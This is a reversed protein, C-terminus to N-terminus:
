PSIKTKNTWDGSGDTKSKCGWNELYEQYILIKDESEGVLIQNSDPTLLRGRFLTASKKSKDGWDGSEDTKSKGGWDGSEDTKTKKTWDGSEDTKSKNSWVM